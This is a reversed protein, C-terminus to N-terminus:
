GKMEFLLGSSPRDGGLSSLASAPVRALEQGSQSDRIVVAVVGGTANVIYDVECSEPDRGPLLSRVLNAHRTPRKQRSDRSGQRRNQDWETRGLAVGVPEIRALRIEAVATDKGSIERIM